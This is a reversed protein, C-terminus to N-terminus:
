IKSLLQQKLNNAGPYDSNIDLCKNITNLATRFDKKESYAQALYYLIQPDSPNVRSSKNLLAVAEDYEKIYVAIIGMRKETFDNINLKNQSYFYKIASKYNILSPYQYLLVNIHKVHNQIDDRDLYAAAANLHADAWTIKNDIFQFAISDLFNKPTYDTVFTHEGKKSFPWDSKLLAVINNGIVSDLDTFLFNARTVSDQINFTIAPEETKPLNGSLRMAEYFAKGMLQYGKFNPHLHDVMLNDGAIRDPSESNFISDISVVSVQFEKGLNDIIKNLDEPARFRLADLDKALRFLSDAKHLNKNNLELLAEEYVRGAEKFKKDPVSIFPRQDKLNSVLRGLIVPVNANKTQELIDRINEEFMELGARYKQSNLLIYQDKAMRAMLSGSVAEKSSFLSVVSKVTNRVLQTTKFKNLYLIFKVVTNSTGLSESSGAGLAGYYENHGTYILILDPKQEIIGPLLDYLTYSSIGTMSLNIVEVPTNPYVLELRKRIYRSFSGMPMYPYGAASSEGLVFVRFANSKKEQDFVDESTVPLFKVGSFYRRPVDHNIIYKGSGADAWQTYDYGYNFIRLALELLVFFMVPILFMIAYFLVSSKKNKFKGGSFSNKNSLQPNAPERGTTTKKKKNGSSKM